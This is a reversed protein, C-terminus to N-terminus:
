PRALRWPKSALRMGPRNWIRIRADLSCARAPVIEKWYTASSLPPTVATDAAGALRMFPLPTATATAPPATAPMTAERPPAALGAAAVGAATGAEVTESTNVMPFGLMVTPLGHAELPQQFVQCAFAGALKKLLRNLSM